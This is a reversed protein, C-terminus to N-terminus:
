RFRRRRLELWLGLVLLLLLWPSQATGASRCGCGPGPDAPQTGGDPGADPLESPDVVTLLGPGVGAAGGPNTVTISRPGLEANPAVTVSVRLEEASVLEEFTVAVREGSLSVTLEPHLVFGTGHISLSMGHAGQAVRDPTVGTVTPAPIDYEISYFYEGDTWLQQDPDYGEGGLQCVVLVAEDLANVDLSLQGMGSADVTLATSRTTQGAAVQLVHVYWQLSHEGRFAFRLPWDLASDVDLVIYNCGNPKPRTSHDAPKADRVPLQLTSLTATKWVESDWWQGAGPLHQGDDDNGIFYRYESFTKVAESLGGHAQLMEDLVDFYDPENLPGEQVSGEWIQRVWRPDSNGYLTALFHVWLAGGYEYIDSPTAKYELPRWPQSQFYPFTAVTYMWGEPFIEAEVYSATNEMFAVRENYDMAIQCAHNFEHVVTTDLYVDDLSPDIVIYTYADSHPTVDVDLYPATYGAAGGADEVYFRYLGAAPEIPPAWFGWDLVQTQYAIEAVELVRQAQAAQAPLAYSVRIPYLATSDISYTLDPPPLLLNRLQGRVAPEVRDLSRFAQLMVRFHSRASPQGSKTDGAFRVPLLHPAKVATVRYLLRQGQTIAGSAYADDIARLSGNARVPAPAIVLLLLAFWPLLKRM